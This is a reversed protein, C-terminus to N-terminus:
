PAPLTYVAMTNPNEGAEFRDPEVPKRTFGNRALLRTAGANQVKTWAEIERLQLTGFGFELVATLAEQMLGQGQRGPLLEFGLEAMRYHETESFNWLCITGMLDNEEGVLAWYVWERRDIGANIHYIFAESEAQTKPPAKDIYKRNEVDSHMEFIRAADEPLLQRLRLRATKMEPFPHIPLEVSM